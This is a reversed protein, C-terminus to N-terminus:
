KGGVTHRRLRSKLPASNLESGKKPEAEARDADGRPPWAALAENALADAIQNRERPIATFTVQQFQRVSATAQDHWRRLTFSHVSFRGQMQGVVIESTGAVQIM